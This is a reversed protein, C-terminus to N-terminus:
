EEDAFISGQEAHVDRPLMELEDVHRRTIPMGTAVVISSQEHETALFILRLRGVHHPM